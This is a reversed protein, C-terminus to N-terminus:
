FERWKTLWDSTFGLGITVRECMFKKACREGRKACAVHKTPESSQRRGKRDALTIVRTKGSCFFETLLLWTARDLKEHMCSFIIVSFVVNQLRSNSRLSNFSFPVTDKWKATFARLSLKCQHTYWGAIQLTKLRLQQTALPLFIAELFM